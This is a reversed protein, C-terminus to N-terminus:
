LEPNKSYDYEDFVQGASSYVKLHVHSYEIVIEGQFNSIPSFKSYKPLKEHMFTIAPMVEYMLIEELVETIAMAMMWANELKDFLKCTALLKHRGDSLNLAVHLRHGEGSHVVYSAVSLFKNKGRGQKPIPDSNKYDSVGLYSDTSWYEIGHNAFIANMYTELFKTLAGVNEFDPKSTLIAKFFHRTM